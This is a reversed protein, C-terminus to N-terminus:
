MHATFYTLCEKRKKIGVYQFIFVTSTIRQMPWSKLLWINGKFIIWIGNSKEKLHLLEAAPSWLCM